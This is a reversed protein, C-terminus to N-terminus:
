WRKEFHNRLLVAAMNAILTVVLLAMIAAAVLSIRFEEAPEGAWQYVIQPPRHVHRLVEGLLERRWDHLLHRLLRGRPDAARDRRDRTSVGLITGTLIGAFANPLVLTRQVEWKTAGVGYGGERLAQPVARISESATVIVIPLVVVSLTLGGAIITKGGTIGNEGFISELPGGILPIQDIDTGMLQVFVALGLIGYVVSPVGALNRINLRVADTFRNAPAYEELYVATAIGLPM